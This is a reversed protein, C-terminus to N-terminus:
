AKTKKGKGNKEKNGSSRLGKGRRVVVFVIGVLVVVLVVVVWLYNGVVEVETEVVDGAVEVVEVKIPENILQITLEAENTVISNLKIFLDYYIPSTLNLKASQGVGLKLNIPESRITLNVFDSGVDNVSLLHRGGEFDFISFNIEDNKKLKKTYGLKFEDVSVEYVKLVSSVSVSSTSGGGSSGSYVVVSSTTFSDSANVCNGARDCSTAVYSYATSASLGSIVISHSTAYNSSSGSIEGSVFSNASENTTWTITAGSVSVSESLSSIVPATVDYVISYNSNGWSENSVNNIGLCSWSYNEEDIFTYNFVTTNNTGTINEISNNVLGGSSNWLYFTVNSLVYNEESTVQCSFNTDNVNTYSDDEPSLLTTLIGGITLSFNSSAWGFNGLADVGLCNWEYNGFSMNNVDFSSENETGSLNATANYHLGGSSNWIKLTLNALQWDTVNCVFTQNVTLNIKNDTPSVLTVNPADIDLSLIADYVNIRSFNYGSNASDDLVAGTNNLVNEIESPTMSQESLGLYQNMLVIAGAIHPASMSTGNMDGFGGGIVSSMINIGPAMLELLFGRMFSIEDADNVAGAIIASEVCAPSAVGITCNEQGSQDCNGASVVVTINNAVANGISNYFGGSSSDNNCYSNHTSNDGLSMSIVSINFKSANNVCWDIGALIDSGLGEGGSNLAKISIIKVNPAVGKYTNNSSAIIGTVHTGHGNDDLPFETNNIFNYGGIIQCMSSVNNAGYCNGFASHNYNVGTDIVCVTQGVGTINVEDVILNWSNIAGIQSVSVDLNAHYIKDVLITKLPDNQLLELEESTVKASFGRIGSYKHIIREKPIEVGSTMAMNRIGAQPAMKELVIVPVTDGSEGSVFRLFILMFVFVFVFFWKNMGFLRVREMLINM